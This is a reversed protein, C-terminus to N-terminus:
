YESFSVFIRLVLENPVNAVNAIPASAEAM